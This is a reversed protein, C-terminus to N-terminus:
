NVPYSNVLQMLSDHALDKLSSCSNADVPFRYPYSSFFLPPPRLAPRTVTADYITVQPPTSQPTRISGQDDAVM